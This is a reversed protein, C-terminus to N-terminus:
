AKPHGQFMWRVGFKDTLAGYAGFPLDRLADLLAPDAGEALRDFLTKLEEYSAGTIFVCVTNGRDPHRIPHFWDSGSIEVGGSTLRAHLIKEHLHPPVQAKMPTDGAKTLSLEGGLCAQYFKMAEACTGDFFLYPKAKAM